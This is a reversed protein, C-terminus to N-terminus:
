YSPGLNLRWHWLLLFLVRQKNKSTVLNHALSLVYTLVITGHSLRTWAIGHQPGRSHEHKLSLPQAPHATPSAPDLPPHARKGEPFSHWTPQATRGPWQHRSSAVQHTTATITDGRNSPQDATKLSRLMLAAVKEQITGAPLAPWCSPFTPFPGSRPSLWYQAHM